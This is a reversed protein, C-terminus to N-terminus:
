WLQDTTSRTLWTNTYICADEQHNTQKNNLFSPLFWEIKEYIFILWLKITQLIIERVIETICVDDFKFNKVVITTENRDTDNPLKLYSMTKVQPLSFFIISKGTM